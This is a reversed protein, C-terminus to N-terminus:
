LVNSKGECGKRKAYWRRHDSCSRTRGVRNSDLDLPRCGFSGTASTLKRAEVIELKLLTSAIRPGGLKAPGRGYHPCRECGKEGTSCYINNHCLLPCAM